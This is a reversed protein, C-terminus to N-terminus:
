RPAIVRVVRARMHHLFTRAAPPVLSLGGRHLGAALAVRGIPNLAVYYRPYSLERFGNRRKFETLSSNHNVGYDFKGYVLHELGQAECAQVAHALMANLAKKDRHREMALIQIMMATTDVTIYKIFGILEGELWAGIFHSRDPYTANLTRVRELPQMYHWFRRGQRVPMEDYIDKIGCVLPDDFRAPGITVGRKAALRTNKRSEQPLSRWWDEFSRTSVVALNDVVSPHPLQPPPHSGFPRAFTYLDASLRHDRITALAEPLDPHNAREVLEEDFLQAIRPFRGTSVVTYCGAHVGPVRVDIGRIRITVSATTM